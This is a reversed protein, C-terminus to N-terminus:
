PTIPTEETVAPLINPRKPQIMPNNAAAVPPQAMPQPPPPIYETPNKGPFSEVIDMWVKSMDIPVGQARYAIALQGFALVEERKNDISDTATSDALVSISYFDSFSDFATKAVEYFKQTKEDFIRPNQTARESIIMLMKEGLRELTEELNKKMGKFRTNFENWRIKQGTALNTFGNDSSDQTTDITGLTTQIETNISQAESFASNTVDPTPVPALAAMDKTMIINGARSVLKRPDISAGAKMLWM